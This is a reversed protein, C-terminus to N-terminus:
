RDLHQVKSLGALVRSLVDKSLESGFNMKITESDSHVIIMLLGFLLNDLICSDHFEELLASNESQLEADVEAFENLKQFAEILRSWMELESSTQPIVWNHSIAVNLSEGINAVKHEIESPVILLDGPSLVGNYAINDTRLWWEKKGIVQIMWAVSGLPDVHWASGANPGRSIFIWRMVSDLMAASPGLKPLLTNRQLVQTIPAAAHKIHECDGAFYEWGNIYGGFQFLRKIADPLSMQLPENQGSPVFGVIDSSSHLSSQNEETILDTIANWEFLSLANDVIFPIRPNQILQELETLSLHSFRKIPIM